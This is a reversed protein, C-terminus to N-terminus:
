CGLGCTGNGLAAVAATANALKSEIDSAFDPNRIIIKGSSDIFIQDLTVSNANSQILNLADTQNQVLGTALTSSSIRTETGVVQHDILKATIANSM